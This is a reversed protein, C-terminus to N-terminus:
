QGKKQDEKGVREQDTKEEHQRGRGTEQTKWYLSSTLFLSLTPGTPIQITNRTPVDIM